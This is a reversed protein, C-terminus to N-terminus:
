EWNIVVKIDNGSHEHLAKDYETYSIKKTIISNIANGWKNKAAELDRVAMEYHEIGANVSGIMLQNKLVLERLIKDGLICIRRKEGPIGSLVYIGNTGLVDILQFEIETIGSGEFILDLRGLKDDLESTKVTRGDIYRGGIKKLFQPKPSSEDVVDVGIVEAGKLRLILAAMLGIPGLGTVLIKKYSLWNNNKSIEAFRLNQIKLAEDLAKEAVSLPETLVGIDTITYPVKVIYQEKDIVFETQYGDQGKIGRETYDGTFCMDSRNNLCASCKNCGRRVTFVAHDGVKVKTVKSGIEVVRGFMEHGIILEKSGEPADARGGSVEERDTGCIGVQLIKVKIEDDTSIKPEPRDVLSLKTTGPIISIAKM